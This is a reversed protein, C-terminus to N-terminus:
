VGWAITPETRSAVHMTINKKEIDINHLLLEVKVAEFALPSYNNEKSLHGLYIHRCTDGIIKSLLQGARENSLHGTNSMIRRKLPYPYPGAMLMALDHNSEVLLSECGRLKEVLYDDFTGMDTATAVKSEKDTFTYCVPDAADHYITSAEVKVDQFTFPQDPRISHFLRADIKGLNSCSLIYDITKGTAFVPVPYKRLFVGLGSIHDNHEHTVFIAQIKEAPVGVQSLGESTKKCSFGADVLFHANDNGVYICNGSSGSGISAIKM